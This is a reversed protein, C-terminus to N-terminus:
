CANGYPIHSRNETRAFTTEAKQSRSPQPLCFIVGVKERFTRRAGNVLVLVCLLLRFAVDANM